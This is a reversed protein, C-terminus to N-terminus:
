IACLRPKLPSTRCHSCKIPAIPSQATTAENASVDYEGCLMDKNIGDLLPFRYRNRVARVVSLQNPEDLEIRRADLSRDQEPEPTWLRVRSQADVKDM